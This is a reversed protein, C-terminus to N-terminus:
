DSAIIDKKIEKLATLVEDIKDIKAKLSEQEAKVKEIRQVLSNKRKELEQETKSINDNKNFSERLPYSFTIKSEGTMSNTKKHGVIDKANSYNWKKEINQEKSRMLSRYLDREKNNLGDPIQIAERM